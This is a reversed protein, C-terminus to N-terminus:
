SSPVRGALRAIKLRDLIEDRERHVEPGLDCLAGLADITAAVDYQFGRERASALADLLVGRAAETQGLRGLAVGAARELLPRQREATRLERLAIELGREADGALAEAEAILAQAFDAYARLEFRRLQAVASELIAVGKRADGRRVELRGLLADAFAVAQREGTASWVRRVRKLHVEAEDLHGQDSLIEGVNCDVRAADAPRGARESCQGARRYLEIADDWCGKFYAFMGLNNLVDFEHEVDGLQEYIELARWSHTAQEPHGSEVLAWDLSYLAHALASLEGVSEAEAIAQRCAAVAESWRGQRNRVGGLRSRMRARWATADDGEVNELLRFGRLLWRVAATLAESRSAVDAHRDCLRANAIPDDRLLRRAETLARSAAAPEGICRLSEGMQEWAQALAHRDAAGCARGTEIARQYLRAADAHSSSEQARKAALMAYRHARVYDRALAFHNALVAVAAEHETGQERELSLGVAEHLRRRLKFPLSSYAVEQLAPRRFRVHGDSERAFVSSLRDWFRDDPVPIDPALVDVLRSPQFSMGLVAVRSVIARDAADLADIRAMAAAGVTDPLEDRKGDAAAALLDLLFEPNGGSREVALEVVHPPLQASEPTFLALEHSAAGSLPGLEIREHPCDTLTLGGPVDRRTVVVVWASTELELALARFLAASAADMLHAQEVEVITPVVLARGLFAIVVEHLKAPRAAEALREVEVSAPVELDLVIALLSLWPILEPCNDELEDVLRDFVDPEPTDADLGLVQYLLVRWASYPTDRTYVECGARLEAMGQGIGALEAILRSKGIGMEGTLEILTGSGGRARAVSFRLHDLESARGVLPLELRISGESAGRLTRGIDWAHVSHSRGKVTFPELWAQEFSTKAGRLVERTAYVHGPPAKAMLRAALNVSDGMVAYWRRYDPGVQATFVPGRNVGVRVPLPPDGEVIHRLALLMRDEDDGVVRPAGASLRIKVGDAAIDTDLFGVDYREVAEQVLRIVEDLRRAAYELGEAAIVEDLGGFHLFAIAATRHEPATSGERLHARVAVPLFSEIVAETPTPLGTPPVWECAAPSRGLLFGPGSRAGVSSRPLLRATEPSVLIQGSSAAAELGVLTTTAEGGIMLERHSRGVVFMPFTDSHVGVSMRLVVNSDGARVRGAERLRRRMESAACCARMAHEQNAVQDYFLLVMADGGFKVLSGGRGYAEALLSTFCANIVDVLQESGEGGRRALRESLRTFGSVDAFVLTCYVPEALVEIPRALRALVARPVFPALTGPEPQVQLNSSTILAGVSGGDPSPLTRDLAPM